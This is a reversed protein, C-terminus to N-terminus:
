DLTYLPVEHVTGRSPMKLPNARELYGLSRVECGMGDVTWVWARGQDLLRVAKKAVVSLFASVELLMQQRAYVTDPEGVCELIADVHVIRPGITATEDQLSPPGFRTKDDLWLEGRWSETTETGHLPM